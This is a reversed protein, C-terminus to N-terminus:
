ALQQNLQNLWNLKMNWLHKTKLTFVYLSFVCAVMHCASDNIKNAMDMCPQVVSPSFLYIRGFNDKLM